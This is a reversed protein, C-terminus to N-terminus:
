SGCRHGKRAVAGRSVKRKKSPNLEVRHKGTIREACRTASTSGRGRGDIWIDLWAATGRPHVHCPGREPHKGDGCTDEVIVYRDLYPLYFRSGRAFDLVDRGRVYRHGVAVTIPDAWTGTGGAKKHRVPHSIAASGAPTNDYYTYGTVYMTKTSPTASTARAAVKAAARSGSVAASAPAGVVSPPGALDTAGPSVCATVSVLLGAASGFGAWRSVTGISILRSM